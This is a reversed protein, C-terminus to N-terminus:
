VDRDESARDGAGPIGTNALGVEERSTCGFGSTGREGAFQQFVHRFAATTSGPHAQRCLGALRNVEDPDTIETLTEVGTQSVSVLLLKNGCRLLTVQGRGALAARGLVEVVESPLVVSGGPVARRMAWAVVFFLGLVVALSSGVTVM